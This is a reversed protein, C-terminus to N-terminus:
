DTGVTVAAGAGDGTDRSVPGGREILEADCSLRRGDSSHQIQVPGPCIVTVTRGELFSRETGHDGAAVKWGIMAGTEVPQAHIEGEAGSDNLLQRPPVQEGTLWNHGASPHILIEHIPAHRPMQLPVHGGHITPVATATGEWFAADQTRRRGSRGKRQANTRERVQTTGPEQFQGGLHQQVVGQRDATDLLHYDV